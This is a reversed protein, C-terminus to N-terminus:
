TVNSGKRTNLRLCKQSYIDSNKSSCLCLGKQFSINAESSLNRISQFLSLPTGLPTFSEEEGGKNDESYDVSLDICSSCVLLVFPLSFLPPYGTWSPGGLVLAVGFLCWFLLTAVQLSTAVQFLTTVTVTGYVKNCYRYVTDPLQITSASLNYISLYIKYGLGTRRGKELIRNGRESNSAINSQNMHKYRFCRFIM